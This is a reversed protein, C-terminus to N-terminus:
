DPAHRGPRRAILGALALGIVAGIVVDRPRPKREAENSREELAALRKALGELESQAHAQRIRAGLVAALM